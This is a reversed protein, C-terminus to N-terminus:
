KNGKINEINDNKSNDKSLSKNVKESVYSDAINSFISPKVSAEPQSSIGLYGAIWRYRKM